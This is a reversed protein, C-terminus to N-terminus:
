WIKMKGFSNWYYLEVIRKLRLCSIARSTCRTMSDFTFELFSPLRLSTVSTLHCKSSTDLTSNVSIKAYKSLQEFVPKPILLTCILSIFLSVLSVMFFSYIFLFNNFLLFLFILTTRSLSHIFWYIVLFLCIFLYHTLSFLFICVSHQHLNSPLLTLGQSLFLKQSVVLAEWVEQIDDFNHINILKM